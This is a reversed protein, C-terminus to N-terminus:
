YGVEHIILRGNSVQYNFSRKGLNTTITLVNNEVSYTGGTTEKGGSVTTTSLFVADEYFSYSTNVVISNFVTYSGNWKGLIENETEWKSFKMDRSVTGSSTKIELEHIILRGNSIEYNFSRQGKEITLTLIGNEVSYNGAEVKKEGSAITTLSFLRDEYFSYSLYTITKIGTYYGNWRGVLENEFNTKTFTLDHYATINKIVLQNNSFQYNFSAKVRDIETTLVENEVSYRGMKSQRENAMDTTLLFVGDEYFSYSVNISTNGVAYHGNWKGPIGSETEWKSFKVNSSVTGSPTKVEIGHIILRGNTIEYDFSRSGQGTTATLKGNTFSYRGSETQKTGSNVTTLSFTGEEYFSYSLYIITDIGTYYGNWKGIIENTFNGKTFKVDTANIGSASNQATGSSSAADIMLGIGGAVVEATVEVIGGVVAEVVGGVIEGIIAGIIEACGSFALGVILILATLKLSKTKKMM